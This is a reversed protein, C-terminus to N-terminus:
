AAIGLGTAAALRAVRDVLEDHAARYAAVPRGAPDPVSWHLTPAAFPLPAERVRDCVSVVLDPRAAVDDVHRPRVDGLDLGRDAAVRVARPDVAAAPATGASAAPRGTTATWLAAALQSRAANRTCVFVPRRPPRVPVGARDAARDGSAGRGIMVAGAPRLTVYRRRGDGESRRVAVLEAAELTRLHFALHNAGLGVLDGLEGPTLDGAVLADVVALRIPDGLARHRAARAVLDGHATPDATM